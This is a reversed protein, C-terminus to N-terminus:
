YYGTIKIEKVHYGWEVFVRRKIQEILEEPEITNIDGIYDQKAIFKRGNELTGEFRIKGEGFCRKINDLIGMKIVRHM